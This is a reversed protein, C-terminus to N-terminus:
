IEKILKLPHSMICQVSCINEINEKYENLVFLFIDVNKTFFVDTGEGNM